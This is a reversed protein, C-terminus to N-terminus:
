EGEQIEIELVVSPFLMKWDHLRFMEPYRILMVNIEELLTKEWKLALAGSLVVKVKLVDDVVEVSEFELEKGIM